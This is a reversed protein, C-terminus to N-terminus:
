LTRNCHMSLSVADSLQVESHSVAAWIPVTIMLSGWLLGLLSVRNCFTVKEYSYFTCEKKKRTMRSVSCLNINLFYMHQYFFIIIFITIIAQSFVTMFCSIFHTIKKKANKSLVANIYKDHESENSKTHGNWFSDCLTVCPYCLGRCSM